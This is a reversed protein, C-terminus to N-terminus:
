SIMAQLATVNLSPELMGRVRELDDKTDVSVKAGLNPNVATINRQIWPTVHEREYSDQANFHARQLSSFSFVECDFGSPVLRIPFTNSVYEQCSNHFANIVRDCKAPDILPCDGSIRVVVDADAGLAAYYYRSLVDEESGRFIMSGTETAIKTLCDNESSNPTALIVVDKGKIQQARNLVHWLLPRGNIEELSKGPLRRSGMRAQVIVVTRM